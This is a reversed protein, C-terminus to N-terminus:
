KMIASFLYEGSGVELITESAASSLVKIDSIKDLAKNGEKIYSAKSTPIHIKAKTNVPISV